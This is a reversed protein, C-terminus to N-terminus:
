ASYADAAALLAAHLRQSVVRVSSSSAESSSSSCADASCLAAQLERVGLGEPTPPTAPAAEMAVGPPGFRVLRPELLRVRVVEGYLREVSVITERPIIHALPGATRPPGPLLPVWWSPVPELRAKRLSRSIRPSTTAKTKGLSPSAQAEQSAKAAEHVSMLDLLESLEDKRWLVSAEVEVGHLESEAFSLPLQVDIMSEPKEHMVLNIPKLSITLLNERNLFYNEAGIVIKCRTPDSREGLAILSVLSRIAIFGCASDDALALADRMSRLSCYTTLDGFVATTGDSKDGDNIVCEMDLLPKSDAPLCLPQSLVSPSPFPLPSPSRSRPREHARAGPPTWVPDRPDNPDPSLTTPSSPNDMDTALSVRAHRVRM